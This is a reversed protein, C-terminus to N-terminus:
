GGIVWSVSTGYYSATPKGEADLAPEFRAREMIKECTIKNFPENGYSRQILCDTPTGTSDILLRFSVLSQAGTSLASGPYDNPKLWIGPNTKPTPRRTLRKMAEPDLGWTRVLDDTCKRMADFPKELPGTEFTVSRGRLKVVLRKISSEILRANGPTDGFLDSGPVFLTTVGKKNKGIMAREQRDSYGTDDDNTVYILTPKDQQNTASLAKATILLQFGQSQTFQEFILSQLDDKEGFGRALTCSTKTWDVQWPTAAALRIVKAAAISPVGFAIGPAAALSIVFRYLAARRM